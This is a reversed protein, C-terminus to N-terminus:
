SRDEDMPGAATRSRGERLQQQVSEVDAHTLPKDDSYPAAPEAVVIGDREILAYNREVPRIEVHDDCLAIEIDGRDDLQLAKRMDRPLVIRGARDITTRITYTM